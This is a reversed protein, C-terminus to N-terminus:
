TNLVCYVSETRCLVVFTYIPNLQPDLPAPAKPRNPLEERKPPQQAANDFHYYLNVNPGFTRVLCQRLQEIHHEEIYDVVFNNPAGLTLDNGRLSIFRLSTFWTQFAQEPMSERLLQLCYKWRDQPTPEKM